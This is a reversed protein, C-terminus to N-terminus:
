NCLTFDGRSKLESLPFNQSVTGTHSPSLEALPISYELVWVRGLFTSRWEIIESTCFLHFRIISYSSPFSARIDMRNREYRIKCRRINQSLIFHRSGM